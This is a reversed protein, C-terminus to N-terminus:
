CANPWTNGPARQRGQTQMITIFGLLAALGNAQRTYAILRMFAAQFNDAVLRCSSALCPKSVASYSWPAAADSVCPVSITKAHNSMSHTTEDYGVFDTEPWEQKGAWTASGRWTRQMHGGFVVKSKLLDPRPNCHRCRTRDPMVAGIRPFGRELGSSPMFTPQRATVLVWAVPLMTCFPSAPAGAVTFIM